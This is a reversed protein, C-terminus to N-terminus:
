VPKEIRLFTAGLGLALVLWVIMSLLTAFRNLLPERFSLSVVSDRSPIPISIAGFRDPVVNVAVGNVSAKWHPYYFTAIRVDIPEGKGVLFARSMPDWDVVDVQRGEATVKERIDLAEPKAWTPWWGEFMPQEAIEREVEHFEAYPIPASPIIIQTINFLIITAITLIAPYAIFRERHRFERFLLPISISFAVVAFLSVVSMWRWPFQIKQLFPLADWIFESPRSLMFFSFLGTISSAFLVYRTDSDHRRRVRWLLVFAPITLIVTMVIAIDFLWSTMVFLFNNRETLVNPFLWEEFRFYGTAYKPNNHALWNFESIITVLRFATGGVTLAVAAGLQVAIRKYNKWDLVLLVYLPLTLSTIITTPIHTLILVAYSIAFLIVNIWTGKRCIRTVFLFCFPIIAWAAFEAFLFFQFVEALHQPVIAYATAAILGSISDTWERVFLFVGVCGLTMWFLLNSWLAWFWDQTIMETFALVYLSVPPYFRIGISGFGFNDNAWGPFFQGSLLAEKLASAFRIDTIMDFGAPLGSLLPFGFTLFCFVFIFLLCVVTKRELYEVAKNPNHM